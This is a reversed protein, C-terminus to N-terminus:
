SWGASLQRYRKAQRVFGFRCLGPLRCAFELWDAVTEPPPNAEIPLVIEATGFGVAAHIAAAHRLQDNVNLHAVTTEVTSRRCAQYPRPVGSLMLDLASPLRDAERALSAHLALWNRHAFEAATGGGLSEVVAGIGVPVVLLRARDLLFGSSLAPSGRLRDRIARGASVALRALTGLKAVFAAPPDDTRRVTERLRPLGVGITALVAHNDRDLGEALSVPRQPRDIVLALPADTLVRRALRHLRDRGKPAFDKECLHWDVRIDRAAPDLLADLFAEGPPESINVNIVARLRNSRLAARLRQASEPTALAGDPFEIAVFESAREAARAVRDAWGASDTPPSAIAAALKQPASPSFFHLWGDDEAARIERPMEDKQAPPSLSPVESARDSENGGRFSLDFLEGSASSVVVPLHEIARALLPHGLERIVKITAETVDDAAICDAPLEDALFHLVGDALERALFPDSRGIQETAAFVTQCIRDGDFREKRGGPKAIWKPLPRPDPV